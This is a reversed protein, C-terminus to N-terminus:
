DHRAEMAFGALEAVLAARTPSLGYRRSLARAALPVPKRSAQIRNAVWAFLPLNSPSPSPLLMRM